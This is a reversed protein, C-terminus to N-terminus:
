GKNRSLGGVALVLPADGIRLERRLMSGNTDQPEIANWVVHREDSNFAPFRQALFDDIAASSGILADTYHRVARQVRWEGSGQGAPKSGGVRLVIRPVRARRAAWGVSLARKWSTMLFADPREARIWSTFRLASFLDANGRPRVTVTSVGRENLLEQFPSAPPCSVVVNHGRKRLGEAILVAQREAGYVVQGDGHILIKM